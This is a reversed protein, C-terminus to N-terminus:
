QGGRRRQRQRQRCCRRGLLCLYQEVLPPEGVLLPDNPEDRCFSSDRTLEPSVTKTLKKGSTKTVSVTLSLTTTTLPQQSSVSDSYSPLAKTRPAPTSRRDYRRYSPGPARPTVAGSSRKPNYNITFASQSHKLPRLSPARSSSHYMPKKSEPHPKKMGTLRHPGRELSTPAPKERKSDLVLDDDGSSSSEDVDDDGDSSSSDNYLATSSCGRTCSSSSSCGHSSRSRPEDAPYDNDTEIPFFNDDLVLILLQRPRCAEWLGDLHLRTATVTCHHAYEKFCAEDVYLHWDLELLMDLELGNLEHLGVGGIQGADWWDEYVNNGDSGKPVKAM